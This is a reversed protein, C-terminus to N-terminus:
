ILYEITYPVNIGTLEFDVKILLGEPGRHLNLFFEEGEAPLTRPLNLRVDKSKGPALAIKFEEEKVLKGNKFLKWKFLYNKLDTFDFENKVTILNKSLDKEQFKINQYHKKVENLGPHPTRNAALLGNACFNEDNHLHLGELDGGYANWDGDKLDTYYFNESQQSPKKVLNFKWKGNLSRYYPSSQEDGKRASEANDNLIFTAHAKEKNREYIKHNEWENKQAQAFLVSVSLLWFMVFSNRM